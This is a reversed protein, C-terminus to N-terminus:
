VHEPPRRANLRWPDPRTLPRELTFEEEHLAAAEYALLLLAARAAVDDTAAAQARWAAAQKRLCRNRSM